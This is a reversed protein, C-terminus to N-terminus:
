TGALFLRRFKEEIKDQKIIITVQKKTVAEYVDEGNEQDTVGDNDMDVPVNKEITKTAVIFVNNDFCYM